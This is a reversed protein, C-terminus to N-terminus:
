CPLLTSKWPNSTTLQCGSSCETTWCTRQRTRWTTVKAFYCRPIYSERLFFFCVCVCVCLSSSKHANPTPKLPVSIIFLVSYGVMHLVPNWHGGVLHKRYESLAAISSKVVSVSTGARLLGGLSPALAKVFSESACMASFANVARETLARPM